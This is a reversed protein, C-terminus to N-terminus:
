AMVGRGLVGALWASADSLARRSVEAVSMAEIFSHSAGRYVVSQVPVGAAQLREAMQRDQEALIDCEAIALFAPPLGSLEGLLPCVLPNDLDGETRAYSRWYGTMEECGLMYGPGGYRRCSDDSCRSVFAGYNLLMGLLPPKGADRRALSAAVGLNAGASDGGIALRSGIGLSAGERSLWDVVDVVQELAVPFRHEPSLAYDIGVVCCGARDAYERMVRDHTDVSFVVWGGGHLYVLAPLEGREPRHVRIRVRGHRTPAELDRSELMQPGGQRWPARAKESWARLEGPTAKAADGQRAMAEGVGRIFRRVDPDLDEGNM